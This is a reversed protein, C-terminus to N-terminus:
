VAAPTTDNEHSSLEATLETRIVKKGRPAKVGIRVRNGNWGLVTVTVDGDITISENSHRTLILM